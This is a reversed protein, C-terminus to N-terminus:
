WQKSDTSSPHKVSAQSRLASRDLSLRGPRSTRHKLAAPETRLVPKNGRSVSTLATLPCRTTPVLMSHSLAEPCRQCFSISIGVGKLWKQGSKVVQMFPPRKSLAFPILPQPNDRDPTGPSQWCWVILLSESTSYTISIAMSSTTMEIWGGVTPSHRSTQVSTQWM